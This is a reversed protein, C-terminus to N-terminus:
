IGLKERAMNMIETTIVTHGNEQAFREIAMVAMPRAFSPVRELRKKADENWTIRNQLPRANDDPKVPVDLAPVRDTVVLVNTGAQEAINEANSGIGSYKGRHMGTRGVVVLDANINDSLTCIAKYPKGQLLASGASIGQEKALVVAKELYQQYLAALSKDIIENHLTEQESFKFVQGAEESLVTSLSGFVNKHLGPDFSAATMLNGGTLRALEAARGVARFAEESGDICALVTRVTGGRRAILLDCKGYRLMRRTNSGIGASGEIRGLGEAGMVMLDFEGSADILVDSNKGDLITETFPIGVSRCSDGLRKMYEASILELGREILVSHVSRQHEMINEAQYREPLHGELAQFRARHFRGTYAHVATISAGAARAILFAVAEAYGSGPSNDVAVGIKKYM